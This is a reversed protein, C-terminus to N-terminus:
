LLTKHKEKEQERRWLGLLSYLFLNLDRFDVLFVDERELVTMCLYTQDKDWAKPKPRGFDLFNGM